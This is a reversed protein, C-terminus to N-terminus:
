KGEAEKVLKCDLTRPEFISRALGKQSNSTNSATLVDILRHYMDPQPSLYNIASEVRKPNMRDEILYKKKIQRRTRGPFLRQILSFDTGFQKLADFFFDTDENTWKEAQTYNAYTASNLKTGSEEVHKFEDLAGAREVAASVTLSKENIVIQGNVVSVQPTMSVRDSGAIRAKTQPIKGTFIFRTDAGEGSDVKEHVGKRAFSNHRHNDMSESDDTKRKNGRYRAEAAREERSRQRIIDRITRTLREDVTTYEALAISKRLDITNFRNGSTTSASRVWRHAPPQSVQSSMHGSAMDINSRTRMTKKTSRKVMTSKSRSIGLIPTKTATQSGRFSPSSRASPSKNLPASGPQSGMGLGIQCKEHEASHDVIDGVSSDAKTGV